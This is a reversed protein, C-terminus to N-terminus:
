GSEKSPTRGYLSCKVVARHWYIPKVTCPCGSGFEPWYCWWAGSLMLEVLVSSTDKEGHAGMRWRTDPFTTFLYQTFTHVSHILSHIRVRVIQHHPVEYVVELEVGVRFDLSSSFAPPHFIPAGHERLLMCSSSVVMWLGGPHPFVGRHTTKRKRSIKM